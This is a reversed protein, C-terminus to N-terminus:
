LYRFKSRNGDSVCLRRGGTGSDVLTPPILAVSTGGRTQSLVLVVLTRRRGRFVVDRGVDNVYRTTGFLIADSPPM